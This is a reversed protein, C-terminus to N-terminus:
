MQVGVLTELSITGQWYFHRLNNHVQIIKGLGIEKKNFLLFDGHKEGPLGCQLWEMIHHLQIQSLQCYSM